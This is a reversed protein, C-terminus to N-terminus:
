YRRKNRVDHIKPGELEVYWRNTNPEDNDQDSNVYQRVNGKATAWLITACRQQASPNEACRSLRVTRSPGIQFGVLAILRPM